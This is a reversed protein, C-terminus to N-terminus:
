RGRREPGLLSSRCPRQSRSQGHGPSWTPPAHAWGAPGRSGVAQPGAARRPESTLAESCRSSGDAPDRRGRRCSTVSRSPPDRGGRWPLLSAVPVCARRACWPCWARSPCVNPSRLTYKRSLSDPILAHFDRFGDAGYAAAVSFCLSPVSTHCRGSVGGSGCGEFRPNSGWVAGSSSRPRQRGEPSLPLPSAALVRGPPRSVAWCCRHPWAGGRADSRRRRSLELGAIRFRERWAALSRPSGREGRRSADRM